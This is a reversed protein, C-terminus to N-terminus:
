EGITAHGLADGAPRLERHRSGLLALADGPRRGAFRPKQGIQGGLNGMLRRYEAPLTLRVSGTM